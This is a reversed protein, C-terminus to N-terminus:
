RGGVFCGGRHETDSARGHIPDQAALPLGAVHPELWTTTIAGADDIQLPQRGMGSGLWISSQHIADRCPGSKATPRDTNGRHVSRHLADTPCV